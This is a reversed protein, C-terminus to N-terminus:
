LSVKLIDLGSKLYDALPLKETMQNIEVEKSVWGHKEFYDFENKYILHPHLSGDYDQDRGLYMVTQLMKIDDYNLSQLYNDLEIALENIKRGESTAEFALMETISGGEFGSSDHANKWTEALRIVDRFIQNKDIFLSNVM